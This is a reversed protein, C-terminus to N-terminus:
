QRNIAIVDNIVTEISVTNYYNTDPAYETPTAIIVLDAGEFAERSNLTARFNLPERRLFKEAELYEIPSVKRNLMEVKAQLIDLCVVENHQALLIGNTLGVCGM